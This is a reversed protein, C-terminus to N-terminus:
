MYLFGMAVIFGYRDSATACYTVARGRSVNLLNTSIRSAYACYLCKYKNMGGVYVIAHMTIRQVNSPTHRSLSNNNIQLTTGPKRDYNHIKHALYSTIFFTFFTQSKKIPFPNISKGNTCSLM